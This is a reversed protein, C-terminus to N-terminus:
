RAYSYIIDLNDLFEIARGREKARTVIEVWYHDPMGVSPTLGDVWVRNEPDGNILEVMEERDVDGVIFFRHQTEFAVSPVVIAALVGLVCLIFLVGGVVDNM